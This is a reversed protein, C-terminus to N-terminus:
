AFNWNTAGVPLSMETYAKAYGAAIINMKYESTFRVKQLPPSPVVWLQSARQGKGQAGDREPLAETVKM